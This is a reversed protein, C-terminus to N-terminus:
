KKRKLLALGGLSLLALTAPEPVDSAVIIQDAGIGFYNGVSQPLGTEPISALQTLGSLDPPFGPCGDSYLQLSSGTYSVLIDSITQDAELLTVYGTVPLFPNFPGIDAIGEPGSGNEPITVTMNIGGYNVFLSDSAAVVAWACHPLMVLLVGAFLVTHRVVGHKWHNPYPKM